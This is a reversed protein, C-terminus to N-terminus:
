KKDMGGAVATGGKAKCKKASLEFMGAAMMAAIVSGKPTM